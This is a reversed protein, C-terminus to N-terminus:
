VWRYPLVVEVLVRACCDQVNLVKNAEEISHKACLDGYEKAFTPTFIGAEAGRAPQDDNRSAVRGVHEPRHRASQLTRTERGPDDGHRVAKCRLSAEASSAWSGRM